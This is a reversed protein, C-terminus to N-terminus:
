APNATPLLVRILVSAELLACAAAWILKAAHDSDRVFGKVAKSYGSIQLAFFEARSRSQPILMFPRPFPPEGGEVCMQRAVAESFTKLSLNSQCSFVQVKFCCVMQSGQGM